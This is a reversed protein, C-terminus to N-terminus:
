GILYTVVVSIAVENTGAEIPTAADRSAMMAM